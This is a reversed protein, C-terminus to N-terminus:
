NTRAAEEVKNEYIYVNFDGKFSTSKIYTFRSDLDKLIENNPYLFKTDFDIYILREFNEDIRIDQATYVGYVNRTILAKELHLNKFLDRDLHYAITLNYHPPCFYIMSSKEQACKEVYEVLVDPNRNISPILKFSLVVPLLLIFPAFKLRGKLPNSDILSFLWFIFPISLFQLYKLNFFPQYVYSFIFIGFYGTLFWFLFFNAERFHLKQNKQKIIILLGIVIIFLSLITLTNNSLKVLNIWLDEFTPPSVWTGADGVENLRFLFVSLQPWFLVGTIGFSIASNGILKTSWNKFHSILLVFQFGIVLAGLYHTYLLLANVIALFIFYKFGGSKNLIKYWYYLALVFFLTFLGYMRAEMAVFHNVRLLLCALVATFAVKPRMFERSLRYLFVILVFSILVSLSRVAFPSIGFMDIWYKLLVYHGIPNNGTSLESVIHNLSFQSHYISFPEDLSIPFLNLIPFCIIAQIGILLLIYKNSESLKM